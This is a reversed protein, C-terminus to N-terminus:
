SAGGGTGPPAAAGGSMAPEWDVDVVVCPDGDEDVEFAIRISHDRDRFLREVDNMPFGHHVLQVAAVLTAAHQMADGDIAEGRAHAALQITVFALPDTFALDSM